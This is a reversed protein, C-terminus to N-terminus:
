DELYGDEIAKRVLLAVNPVRLKELLHKRHTEVTSSAIHLKRAIEITTMGDLILQLVDKERATLTARGEQDIGRGRQSNFQINKVEDGFHIGGNALEKIALVLEEQDANDKLMYGDAGYKIAADIYQSNKYMSLILVKAEPHNEKIYRTLELGNKQPIEIDVLAVDVRGNELFKIAMEGDIAEGEVCIGNEHLLISKIGDIVIKHDEVILVHIM